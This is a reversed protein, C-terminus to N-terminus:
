SVKPWFKKSDILDDLADHARGILVEKDTDGVVRDQFDSLDLERLVDPAMVVDNLLGLDDQLKEMKGIFTEYRRRSKGGNFLSTFFESAYRLKKAAKRAEHRTEDDVGAFNRGLKKLKKRRRDLVRIAFEPAPLDRMNDTDATEAYRRSHLWENFDLALARARSSHLAANVESYAQQRAMNFRAHMEADNAKSLLVDINRAKGLVGALWKLEQKLREAKADTLIEKYLSFASRLRRLAVRAQHLAEAHQREILISENLRFQRYCSQAIVAFSNATTMQRDLEIPEAKFLLKQRDLLRYGREAKTEVGFRIPVIAEIKRAWIFLAQANGEKLELELERVPVQRDRAHVNGDDLAVEINAGEDKITWKRRLVDVTFIPALDDPTIGLETSLPISCDIVPQNDNLLIEWESRVFVSNAPGNAKVTQVHADGSTRIRVSYGAHRLDHETTDFYISSLESSSEPKGLLNSALLTEIAESTMELKLEIETPM